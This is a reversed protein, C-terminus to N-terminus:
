VNLHVEAYIGDDKNNVNVVAKSISADYYFECATPDDVGFSVVNAVLVNMSFHKGEFTTVQDEKDTIGLLFSDGIKEVCIHKIDLGLIVIDDKM